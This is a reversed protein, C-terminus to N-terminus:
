LLDPLAFSKRATLAPSTSSEAPAQLILGFGLGAAFCFAFGAALIAWEKLPM